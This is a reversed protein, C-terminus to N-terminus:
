RASPFSSWTCAPTVQGPRVRRRAPPLSVSGHLFKEREDHDAEGGTRDIAERAGPEHERVLGRTDEVEGIARDRRHRRVDEVPQVHPLAHRPLDGRQQTQEHETREHAQQELQERAHEGLDAGLVLDHPHDAQGEADRTHEGEPAVAPAIRAGVDLEGVEQGGLREGHEVDVDPVVLQDGHQDCQDRRDPQVGEEPPRPEADAHAGHDVVGVEHVDGTRVREADTPPRPDDAGHERRHRSQEESRGDAEADRQQDQEDDLRESRRRDSVERVQREGVDAPQQDADRGRQRGLVDVGLMGNM